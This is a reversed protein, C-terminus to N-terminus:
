APCPCRRVEVCTHVRSAWATPGCAQPRVLHTTSSPPQPAHEHSVAAGSRVSFLLPTQAEDGFKKGMVREVVAVHERIDAMLM